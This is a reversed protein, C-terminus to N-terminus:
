SADAAADSGEPGISSSIAKRVHGLEFDGWRDPEGYFHEQIYPEISHSWILEVWADDLDDRLFHSPGIALDRDPLRGNAYDVADAVWELEPKHRRVWRRLLGEIPPQDPFFPVFHFRRRLAADLLAITRDATNMTAIIWLNEPLSFKEPSYQLTISRKRYELLFYLEGFVKAVNGRNIEDIILVHTAQPMSAAATAMRKLPGDQREFGPMGGKLTTPRYGEVFDEYAYSPHFQVIEVSGGGAAFVSALEQAVYTKGTGPPGYFIVQRKDELLRQVKRLWQVDLLLENALSELDHARGDTMEEDDAEVDEDVPALEGGRYRRLAERESDPFDVQDIPWQVVAWLVSQADLRDQLELGRSSAETALRDLFELAHSYVGAEDADNPPRGYETLDISKNYPRTQYIPFQAADVGMLLFSALTTRSGRGRLLDRPFPSLFGRIREATTRQPSWMAELAERAVTPEARCWNLFAMNTHWATLNNPRDFARKLPEFWEEGAVIATRAAVLREVIELKYDRETQEFDPRNYFRAAWRIFQGWPSTDPQWQRLLDPDWFHFQSGREEALKIRIEALQRDVDQTTDSVLESFAKAIRLKMDRSIIQEFTDPHVLHLLAERQSHAGRPLPVSHLFARFRWPDDLLGQQDEPDLAKWARAFEIVLHLLFPRFTNFATGTAALGHDLAEDLEDPIETPAPLWALVENIIKRKTSGKISDPSAVLLHVYLVEGILQVSEPSAGALQRELKVGFHDSSEDPSLVFREHLEDLWRQSWISKEPSYLSGDGRLAADVWRTAARYVVADEPRGSRAM